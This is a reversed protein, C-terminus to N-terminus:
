ASRVGGAASGNWVAIVPRRPHGVEFGLISISAPDLALHKGLSVPMGIWRAALARGFQGHSFLAVSGAVERLGAILRDARAGVEAPTEGGPCGDDWVSWGPRSARIEDTRLGEYEGYDWECLDPEIRVQAGLGARECTTRARLRPSSLVQLFGVDDLASALRRATAEGHATLPLDTRGTHRGSLSWETEGHRILYIRLPVCPTREGASATVQLTMVM